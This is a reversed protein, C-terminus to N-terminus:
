WLLATRAISRAMQKNETQLQVSRGIHGINDVGSKYSNYHLVTYLSQGEVKSGHHMRCLLTVTTFKFCIHLCTCCLNNQQSPEWLLYYIRTKFSVTLQNYNDTLL